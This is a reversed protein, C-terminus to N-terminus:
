QILSVCKELESKDFYNELVGNIVENSSINLYLDIKDCKSNEETEPEPTNERYTLKNEGSYLPEFGDNIMELRENKAQLIKIQEKLGHMQIHMLRIRQVMSERLRSEIEKLIKSLKEQNDSIQQKYKEKLQVHMQIDKRYKALIYKGYDKYKNKKIQIEKLKDQLIECNKCVCDTEQTIIKDQDSDKENTISEDNNISSFVFMSNNVDCGDNEDNKEESESENTDQEDDKKNKKFKSAIHGGYIIKRSFKDTKHESINM